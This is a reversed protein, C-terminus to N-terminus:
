GPAALCRLVEGVYFRHYDGRPYHEGIERALFRSPDVDHTYLKRCVMILRAERFATTGSGTAMPSLGAAAAKDAERGSHTGCYRLADRHREHFFSLTFGAADELFRFTYRSPRVMCACVPRGWAVGMGGWSATMTNHREPPGATVLMWDRGILRFPSEDMDEPAMDMFGPVDPGSPTM